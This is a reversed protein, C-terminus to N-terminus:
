LLILPYFVLMLAASSRSIDTRKVEISKFGAILALARLQQAGILFLHGYYKKPNQRM